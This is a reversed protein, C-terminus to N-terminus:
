VMVIITPENNIMLNTDGFGARFQLLNNQIIITNNLSMSDEVLSLYPIQINVYCNTVVEEQALFM